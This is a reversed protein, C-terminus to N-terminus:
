RYVHLGDSEVGDKRSDRGKSRQTSYIYSAPATVTLQRPFLMLSALAGAMAHIRIIMM